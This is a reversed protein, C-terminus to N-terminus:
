IKIGATIAHARMAAECEALGREFDESEGEGVKNGEFRVSWVSLDGDCDQVFLSYGNDSYSATEGDRHDRFRWTLTSPPLVPLPKRLQAVEILKVESAKGDRDKVHPNVGPDSHLKLTAELFMSLENAHVIYETPTGGEVWHLKVIRLDAVLEGTAEQGYLNEM